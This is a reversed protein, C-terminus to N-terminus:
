FPSINLKTLFEELGKHKESVLVEVIIKGDFTRFVKRAEEFGAIYNATDRSQSPPVTTHPVSLKQGLERFSLRADEQLHKIINLDLNDIKM